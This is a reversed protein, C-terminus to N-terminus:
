ETEDWTQKKGTVRRYQKKIHRLAHALFTHEQEYARKLTAERSILAEKLEAIEKKPSYKIYMPVGVLLLGLGIAIQTPTCQSILYVSFIV